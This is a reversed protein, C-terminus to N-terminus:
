VMGEKSPLKSTICKEINLVCHPVNTQVKNNKGRMLLVPYFIIRSVIFNSFFSNLINGKPFFFILLFLM